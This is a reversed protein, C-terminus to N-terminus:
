NRPDLCPESAFPGHGAMTHMKGSPSLASLLIEQSWTEVDPSEEATVFVLFKDWHVEGGAPQGEAVPGLNVHEDLESTAAWAVYTVGPRTPLGAVSVEVEYLYYGGPLVAVGYPSRAFRLQMVGGAGPARRTPTMEIRTPALGGRYFSGGRCAADVDNSVLEASAPRAGSTLVIVSLLTLAGGAGFWRAKRLGEGNSKM